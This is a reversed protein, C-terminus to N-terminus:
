GLLWVLLPITVMSLVTSQLTGEATYVSDRGYQISLVTVLVAAPCAAVIMMTMLLVQDLGLQRLVLWSLLPILLLRVASALYLEGRRFADLFNVSGMSAGIVIMSMPMTAGSLTSILSRLVGPVPPRLLIIPLSLLTAALPMSLMDKMHLKRDRQGSKLRLVGYTYLIVNFPICSLAVYFAGTPGYVADVIPLAIFMTNGMSMLLEFEVKHGKAVPLLKAMLAGIVYGLAQMLFVVLLLKGLSGLSLGTDMSIAAGLISGVMFVNFTLASATRTFKADLTGRRAMFYGTMMLVLFLFMKELLISMQM